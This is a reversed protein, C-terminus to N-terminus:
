LRQLHSIQLFTGIIPIATSDGKCRLTHPMDCTCEVIPQEYIEPCVWASPGSAPIASIGCWWFLSLLLRWM